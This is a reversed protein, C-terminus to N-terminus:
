GQEFVPKLVPRLIDLPDQGLASNTHKGAQGLDLVDVAKASVQGFPM